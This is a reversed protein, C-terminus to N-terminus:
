CYRCYIHIESSRLRPMQLPPYPATSGDRTTTRLWLESVHRQCLLSLVPLLYIKVQSANREGNREEEKGEMEDMRGSKRGGDQERERDRM